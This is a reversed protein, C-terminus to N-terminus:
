KYNHTSFQFNLLTFKSKLNELLQGSIIIASIPSQQPFVKSFDQDLKFQLKLCDHLFNITFYVFYNIDQTMNTM